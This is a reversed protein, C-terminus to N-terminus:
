RRQDGTDRRAAREADARDMTQRQDHERRVLVYLVLPAVVAFLLVVLAFAGGTM